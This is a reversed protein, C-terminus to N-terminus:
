PTSGPPLVHGLQALAARFAAEHEAGVALHREGILTCLRRTRRDGAILKATAADACEVLRVMGRDTLAASRLTVDSILSRVTEPLAQDSARDLVQLLEDIRRGNAIATLLSGATLSWVREASQDAFASLSMRDGLPLEALAVVDHNPLVKISAATAATEPPTYEALGLVYAGLANVRIARLGDYRSLYKMEDTGWNGRFDDRAGAPDTYAIDILGLTAAYEFLVALTYRGELLTWNHFGAYGLSGYRAESIYLRWLSSENRAITPSLSGRRMRGFLDDLSVWEGAPCEGLANAVSQRRTKASTLVNASRQGKIAEVRTLEDIVAHSVWRRWLDRITASPPATLAARGRTTLQLRGGALEALSGAQVLLPWAYAAIPEHPYFDGAALLVALGTVSAATPRRTKESCRLKGSACLELVIRVNPIAEPETLRVTVAPDDIATV